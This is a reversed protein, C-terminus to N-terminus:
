QARRLSRYAQAAVGLNLLRQLRSQNRSEGSWGVQIIQDLWVPQGYMDEAKQELAMTGDTSLAVGESVGVVFDGKAQFKQICCLLAIDISADREHGSGSVRSEARGGRPCAGADM